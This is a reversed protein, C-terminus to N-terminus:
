SARRAIARLCFSGQPKGILQAGPRPISQLLRDSHLKDADSLVFAARLGAAAKDSIVGKDYAEAVNRSTLQWGSREQTAM